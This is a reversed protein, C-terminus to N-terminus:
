SFLQISFRRINLLSTGREKNKNIYRLSQELYELVLCTQGKYIFNDILKVTSELPDYENIKNLIHMEFKGVKNFEPKNKIIKISVHM